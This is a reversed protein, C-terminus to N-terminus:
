KNLVRKSGSEVNRALLWLEELSRGSLSNMVVAGPVSIPALHEIAVTPAGASVASITGTPSDEVALCSGIEVNLLRSAQLYPYPDPKSRVVEDGAVSITFNGVHASMTGIAADLLVRWSATVIATPIGLSHTELVIERAGPRWEIETTSFLHVINSILVNSIESATPQPAYNASVTLQHMYDVVRELPGGLCKQQDSPLWAIDWQAMTLQEAELWLHESELLTGDLDFLVAKPLRM